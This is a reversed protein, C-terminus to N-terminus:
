PEKIQSVGLLLLEWAERMWIVDWGCAQKPWHLVQNPVVARM